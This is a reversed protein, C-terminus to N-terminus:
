EEPRPSRVSTSESLTGSTLPCERAAPYPTSFPAGVALPCSDALPCAATLPWPEAFPRITPFRASSPGWVDAAGGPRDSALATAGDAVRPRRDVPRAPFYLKIPGTPEAQFVRDEIALALEALRDLALQHADQPDLLVLGARESAAHLNVVVRPLQGAVLDDLDEVRRESRASCGAVSSLSSRWRGIQM